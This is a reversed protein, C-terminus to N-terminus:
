FSLEWSLPQDRHIKLTVSTISVLIKQMFDFAIIKGQNKFKVDKIYFNKM